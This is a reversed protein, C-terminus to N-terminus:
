KREEGGIGATALFYEKFNYNIMDSEEVKFLHICRKYIFFFIGVSHWELIQITCVWVHIM